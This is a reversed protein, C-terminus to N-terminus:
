PQKNRDSRILALLKEVAEEEPINREVCVQKRYLSIRGRGAGVYGYDADAMEGPGNVICGMIGIKLGKMDKTAAKIRAITTQLDYLTRGCGPCSIYETKSTRLRAAQLIGLATAALLAYPLPLAEKRSVRHADPDEPADNILWLGDTMGDMCLVGADAAAEIQFDSKTAATHHYTNAFIVPNTIGDNMLGHVFARQDGARNDHRSAYVAVVEPHAKLCSNYRNRHRRSEILLFKVKADSTAVFRMTRTTFLPLIRHGPHTTQLRKCIGYDVILPIATGVHAPISSGCYLYDARIDADADPQENTTLTPASLIVAPVHEGGIADVAVTTRRRPNTFSFDTAAQAVIRKGSTRREFHEALHRAVPIEHEPEESLSVRITDGIGDTLLAGIGM